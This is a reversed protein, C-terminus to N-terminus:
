GGTDLFYAGTLSRGDQRLTGTFTKNRLAICDLQTDHIPQHTHMHM